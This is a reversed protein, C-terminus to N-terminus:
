RGKSGQKEQNKSGLKHQQAQGRTVSNVRVAFNLSNLSEAVCPREPSICVIMLANSDGGLSDQLFHTLKSNRYPVHAQKKSLALFVDGLASLSRNINQAERLRDGQAESRGVNESGALDVLHLKGKYATGTLKNEAVIRVTVVCHSRSSQSNMATGGVFRQQMAQGLVSLTQECSFVPLEPVNRGKAGKTEKEPPPALMKSPLLNRVQENYIEIASLNVEFDFDEARSQMQAFVSEISRFTVGRHEPEKSGEMTFTKGAGTQGYAFVCANYGDLVSAVCDIVEEFVEEQRSDPGLVRNFEFDQVRGSSPMAHVTNGMADPIVTVEEGRKQPRVRCLVRINGKLRQLQLLLKRRQQLSELHRQELDQCQLRVAYLEARVKKADALEAEMDKMQQRSVMSNSKQASKYVSEFELRSEQLWLETELSWRKTDQKLTELDSKLCIINEEQTILAKLVPKALIGGHARPLPPFTELLSQPVESPSELRSGPISAIDSSQARASALRDVNKQYRRLKNRILQANPASGNSGSDESSQRVSESETDLETPQEQDLSALSAPKRAAGELFADPSIPAQEVVDAALDKDETLAEPIPEDVLKSMKESPALEVPPLSRGTSGVDGKSMLGSVVLYSASSPLDGTKVSHQEPAPTAKGDVSGRCPSSKGDLATECISRRQVIPKRIKTRKTVTPEAEEYEILVGDEGMQDEDTEAGAVTEDSSTSSPPSPNSIISSSFKTSSSLSSALSSMSHSASPKVLLSPSKPLFQAPARVLSALTSISHRHNSTKSTPSPSRVGTHSYRRIEAANEKDSAGRQKIDAESENGEPLREQQNVDSDTAHFLGLLPDHFGASERDLRRIPSRGPGGPKMPNHKPPTTNKPLSTGGDAFDDEESFNAEVGM